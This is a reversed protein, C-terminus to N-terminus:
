GVSLQIREGGEGEDVDISLAQGARASEHLALIAEDLGTADLGRVHPRAVRVTWSALRLPVPLALSFARRGEGESVRIRVWVARVLWLGLLAALVGLGLALYELARVGGAGAYDAALAVAGLAALLSGGILLYRGLSRRPTAPTAPLTPAESDEGRLAQLLRDGEAASIIGQEVMKLVKLEEESTM